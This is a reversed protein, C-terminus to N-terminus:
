SEGLYCLRFGVKMYKYLGNSRASFRARSPSVDMYCLSSHTFSNIAAAELSLWEGFHHSIFFKLGGSNEIWRIANPLYGVALGYSSRRFIEGSVARGDPEYFSWLEQPDCRFFEEETPRAEEPFFPAISLYEEESLLRVPLNKTKKIWTAYASADYWTASAPLFADRELNVTEWPESDTQNRYQVYEPCAAMFKRFESVTVLNSVFLVEKNIHFPMFGESEGATLIPPSYLRENIFFDRLIETSGSYDKLTGGKSYFAKESAHQDNEHWGDYEFYLWRQFHYADNSKPIDANKLYPEFM